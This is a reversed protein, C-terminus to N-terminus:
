EICDLAFLIQERREGKSRAAGAVGFVAGVADLEARKLHVLVDELAVGGALLGDRAGDLSRRDELEIGEADAIRHLADRKLVDLAARLTVGNSGNDSPKAKKPTAKTATKKTTAKKRKGKKKPAAAEREAQGGLLDLLPDHKVLFDFNASTVAM